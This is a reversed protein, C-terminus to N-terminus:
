NPTPREVHDIVLVDMQAEGAKVTLGLQAQLSSLFEADSDWGFSFVYQGKLATKDLVPRGVRPDTSLTDVLDQITGASRLNMVHNETPM